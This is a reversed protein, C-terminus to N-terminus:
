RWRREWDLFMLVTWLAHQRDHKGSLHEKWLHMIPESKLGLAEISSPDLLSEAWGRLRSRLWDALPIAFGMKPRDMIEKPVHRHVLSRLVRKGVRNQAHMTPPLRWSFEFLRHDLLPIRTELSVGMSARDVKALIDDAMYTLTDTAMMRHICELGGFQAYVQKQWNPHCALQLIDSPDDFSSTLSVYAEAFDRKRLIRALKSAKDGALRVPGGMLAAAGDWLSAPPASLVGSCVHRLLLPTRMARELIHGVAYRTYGGFIEDGGDGTLAVTVHKRALKSVLHTPIQSSDAFPEDYLNALGPIVDVLDDQSINLTTHDTNLYRAVEEASKSEDHSAKDFGITFTKVPSERSKTMLATVITSDIGGSLLAGLPVDSIMCEAVSVKAIKELEDAAEEITGTFPNKRANAISKAVFWFTKPKWDVPSVSSIELLRGPELKRIDQYISWPAPIYSHRFYLSLAEYDLKLSTPLVRKIAKLESAFYFNGDVNGYYLPKQGFRDRGLTLKRDRRDWIAFSFMGNAARCAETAGHAAIFELFVETDSNGKFSVGEKQLRKKLKRFNYIEGNFTIIFRGCSSVMPQQGAPSTDIISLRRHALALGAEEDVFVNGDDPGRHLLTDGMDLSLRRLEANSLGPKLIGAIGCM